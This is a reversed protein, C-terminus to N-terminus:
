LKAKAKTERDRPMKISEQNRNIRATATATQKSHEQGERNGGTRQRGEYNASHKITHLKIRPGASDGPGCERLGLERVGIRNPKLEETEVNFHSDRKFNQTPAKFPMSAMIITASDSSSDGEPGIGYIASITCM